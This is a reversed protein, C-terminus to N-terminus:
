PLLFFLRGTARLSVYFYGTVLWDPQKGEGHILVGITQGNVDKRPTFYSVKNDWMLQHKSQMNNVIFVDNEKETVVYMRTVRDYYTFKSLPMSDIMDLKKEKILELAAKNSLVVDQEGFDRQIIIGIIHDSEDHYWSFNKCKDLYILQGSHM